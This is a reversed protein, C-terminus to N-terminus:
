LADVQCYSEGLELRMFAVNTRKEQVSSSVGKELAPPLPTDDEELSSPTAEKSQWTAIRESGGAMVIARYVTIIYEQYLYVRKLM